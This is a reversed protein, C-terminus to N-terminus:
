AYYAVKRNLITQLERALQEANKGAGQVTIDVKGIHVTTGSQAAGNVAGNVSYTSTMNLPDPMADEMMRNVSDMEKEFGVGIGQALFVGVEDAMVKSPSGIKFLKKIFSLVNGVWGSIMNKIWSLSSSIGNWIGQVINKGISVVSSIAGKIGSVISSLLQRGASVMQGLLSVIAQLLAGVLQKGASIIQPFNQIITKAVAIVLQPVYSILQPLAQALGTIITPIMQLAADLLVPLNQVLGNGFSLVLNFAATTLAPLLTTILNPLEAGIMPALGTILNGVGQLATSIRPLINGAMTGVSDVFNNILQGFDASDDAIGTLLNQWSSKMMATSGSITSAAEKATTGTIGMETQVVHIADYVDSLSSIDYHIGSIKEADALLREMENKTGGYGLKLNDLLGYQGRAFGQYALQISEISSGMKNANDAMDQIAMDGYKAAKETDGGLSQLLSASFSTVTEMYDNASMGATKYANSAYEQVIGASEKFLTEVGGVLQEYNAYSEVASKTITAIGTAAAGLAAVGVKAVGGFIKSFKGGASKGASEAEGGMVEALKGTIGEASPIIQVYAKAIDTGTPM